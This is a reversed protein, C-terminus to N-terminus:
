WSNARNRMPQRATKTLITSLEVTKVCNRDSLQVTKVVNRNEDNSTSFGQVSRQRNVKRARQLLQAGRTFAIQDM